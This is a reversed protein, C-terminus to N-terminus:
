RNTSGNLQLLEDIARKRDTVEMSLILLGELIPQISLDFWGKSGDPYTFENEMRRSIRNSMCQELTKFLETNEIGAYKEMMTYGLLEEKTYKGQKVVANNIYLYRWDFGIIQIGELM